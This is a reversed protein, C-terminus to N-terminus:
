DTPYPLHLKIAGRRDKIIAGGKWSRTDGTVPNLSLQEIRYRGPPSNRAIAILGDMTDTEGIVAGGRGTVRFLNAM